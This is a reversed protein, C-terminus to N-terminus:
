TRREMWTEVLAGTACACAAAVLVGTGTPMWTTSLAVVASVVAAAVHAVTRLMPGVLALFTIPIAFDLAFAPPVSAGLVAGVWTALVWLPMIPAAVGFYFAVRKGVPEDRAEYRAVSAAYVQDVQMYAVLARQWLPATGLYPVLSASYMAMRLNVTLSAALILFVPANDVMLSVATFQSAGAVVLLTFGMVEALNLGAETGVVGFLLGFPVIVLIFPLGQVVGQSFVSKKTSAPM